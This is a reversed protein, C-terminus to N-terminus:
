DQRLALFPFYPELRAHAGVWLPGRCGRQPGRWLFIEVATPDTTFLHQDIFRDNIHHNARGLKTTLIPAAHRLNVAWSTVTLGHFVDLLLLLGGLPRKSSPELGAMSLVATHLAVPSVGAGYPSAYGGVLISSRGDTM